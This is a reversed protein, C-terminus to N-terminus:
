FRWTIGGRVSIDTETKTLGGKVGFGIDFNEKVSYILGGLIYAPLTNSSREPNTKVGIDGVLKLSKMVEFTSALSAYWLDNLDDSKNYNRIYALNVHFTWPGTEKSSIFYLYCTSRGNGLDKDENGAPLTFGPKLAFSLGHNEYFRWKTEIALDSIGDATETLDASETRSFRYPVNLIIDARDVIGYTFIATLDTAKTTHEEEKNRGNEGSLEIQFKGKGQTGTDDTILPIAALANMAYLFVNLLLMVLLSFVIKNIKFYTGFEFNM